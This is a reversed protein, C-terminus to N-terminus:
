PHETTSGSALKLAKNMIKRERESFVNDKALESSKMLYSLADVREPADLAATDALLTAPEAASLGKEADVLWASCVGSYRYLLTIQKLALLFKQLEDIRAMDKEGIRATEIYEAFQKEMREREDVLQRLFYLDREQESTSENSSIPHGELALRKKEVQEHMAHIAASLLEDRAKSLIGDCVLWAPMEDENGQM